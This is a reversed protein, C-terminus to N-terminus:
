GWQNPDPKTIGVIWHTNGDIVNHTPPYDKQIPNVIRIYKYGLQSLSNYSEIERQSQLDLSIQVIKVDTRNM